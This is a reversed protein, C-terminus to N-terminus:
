MEALVHVRDPGLEKAARLAQEAHSILDEMGTEPGPFATAVGLTITLRGAPGPHDIALGSVTARMELAVQEAGKRDTAPLLAAFTEGEYRGLLDAPRKLVNELARAVRKLSDDGAEHGFLENIRGLSDVDILLLSVPAGERSARKWERGLTDLFHRRQAVDTLADHTSTRSLSRTAQELQEKQDQLAKELRMRASVDKQIGIFHTTKGSRDRVPSLSLENWFLTGDKRYNRLVVSCPLGDSMARRLKAREPQSRDDGQLFRCNKGVVEDSSYGTMREFAPNVYLVPQDSRTADTIIVGDSGAEVAQRFLALQLETGADLEPM